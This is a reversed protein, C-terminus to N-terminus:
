ADPDTTIHQARWAQLLQQAGPDLTTSDLTAAGRFIMLAYIPALRNVETSLAYENGRAPARERWYNIAAELEQVRLIM